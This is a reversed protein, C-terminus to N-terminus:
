DLLDFSDLCLVLPRWKPSLKGGPMKAGGEMGFIPSAKTNINQHFIPIRNLAKPTILSQLAWYTTWFRISIIQPSSQAM